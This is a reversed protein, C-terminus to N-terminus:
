NKEGLFVPRFDGESVKTYTLLIVRRTRVSNNPDSKHPLFGDFFLVDGPEQVINNWKLGPLYEDSIPSMKPGLMGRTHEGESVQLCGNEIDSHDIAIFVNVINEVYDSWTGAMDQHPYFGRAGPNKFNIKDTCLAAPEGTICNLIRHIKENEAIEKFLPSLEVFKSIKHLIRYKNGQEINEFTCIEPYLFRLRSIEFEIKRILEHDMLGKVLVFGKEEYDDKM